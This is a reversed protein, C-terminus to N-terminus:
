VLEEIIGLIEAAILFAGALVISEPWILAIGAAIRIASKALSVYFHGKSTDKPQIDIMPKHHPCRGQNYDCAPSYEQRCTKCKTM